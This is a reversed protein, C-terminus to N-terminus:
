MDDDSAGWMGQLNMVHPDVIPAISADGDKTYVAGGGGVLWWRGDIVAASYIFVGLASTDVPTATLTKGDWHVFASMASTTGADGWWVDERGRAAAGRLYGSGVGTPIMAWAEGNWHLLAGDAGSVWIDDEAVGVFSGIPSSGRYATAFMRGDF